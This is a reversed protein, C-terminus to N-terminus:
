FVSKQDKNLKNGSDLDTFVELLTRQREVDYNCNNPNEIMQNSGTKKQNM